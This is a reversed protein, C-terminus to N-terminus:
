SSLHAALKDIVACGSKEVAGWLGDKRQNLVGLANYPTVNRGLAVLFSVDGGVQASSLASGVVRAARAIAEAVKERVDRAIEVSLVEVDGPVAVGQLVPWGQIGERVIRVGEIIVTDM